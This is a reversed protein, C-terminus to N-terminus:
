CPSGCHSNRGSVQPHRRTARTADLRTGASHRTRARRAAGPRRRPPRVAPRPPPIMVGQGVSVGDRRGPPSVAVCQRGPRQRRRLDPPPHPPPHPTWGCSMRIPERLVYSYGSRCPWSQSHRPPSDSTGSDGAPGACPIFRFPHGLIRPRAAVSPHAYGCSTAFDAARRM